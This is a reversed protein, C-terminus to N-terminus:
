RSVKAHPFAVNICLLHNPLFTTWSCAALIAFVKKLASGGLGMKCRLRPDMKSVLLAFIVLNVSLIVVIDCAVHGVELGQQMLKEEVPAV